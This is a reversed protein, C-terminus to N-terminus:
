SHRVPVRGKAPVVPGAMRRAMRELSGFGGLSVPLAWLTGGVSSGTMSSDSALFGWIRVGVM